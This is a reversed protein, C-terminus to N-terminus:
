QIEKIQGFPQEKFHIDREIHLGLPGKTPINETSYLQPLKEAQEDTLLRM